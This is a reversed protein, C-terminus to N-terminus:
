RCVTEILSCDLGQLLDELLRAVLYLLLHYHVALNEKVSLLQKVHISITQRRYNSQGIQVNEARDSCSMSLAM